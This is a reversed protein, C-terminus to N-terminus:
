KEEAVHSIVFKLLGKVHDDDLQYYVMKGKRQYRVLHMAKLLRLQHSVRSESMSLLAAIDCVCLVEKGLATLIKLRTPDSLVGFIECANNTTEDDFLSRRAAEIRDRHVVKIRCRPSSSKM